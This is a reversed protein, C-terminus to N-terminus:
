GIGFLSRAPGRKRFCLIPQFYSIKAANVFSFRCPIISREGARPKVELFTILLCRDYTEGFSRNHRLTLSVDVPDRESTISRLPCPVRVIPSFHLIDNGSASERELSRQSFVEARTLAGLCPTFNLRGDKLFEPLKGVFNFNKVM